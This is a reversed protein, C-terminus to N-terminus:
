EQNWENDSSSKPALKAEMDDLMETISPHLRELGSYKLLDKRFAKLEQLSLTQAVDYVPKGRGECCVFASLHKADWKTEKPTPKIVATAKKVM